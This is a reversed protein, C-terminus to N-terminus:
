NVVSAFSVSYVGKASGILLRKGDEDIAISEVVRPMDALVHMTEGHDISYYISTYGSLFLVGSISRHEVLFGVYGSNPVAAKGVVWNYGGDRSTMLGRSTAVHIVNPDGSDFAVDSVIQDSPFGLKFFDVGVKGSLGYDKAAGLYPQFVSSSGWAWYEGPQFPHWRMHDDGGIIGRRGSILNWHYGADTSRYTAAAYRAIAIDPQNPSRRCASIANFEGPDTITEPIGSDSRFWVRGGDTSRWIGIATKPDVGAVASNYSVLIDDGRIDLDVVGVNSWNGLSTDALGLYEWNTMRDLDRRWLGNAATGAYLYPKDYVLKTVLKSELGLFEPVASTFPETGTDSCGVALTTWLLSLYLSKMKFPPKM